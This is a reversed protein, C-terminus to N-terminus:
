RMEIVGFIVGVVGAVSGVMTWYRTSTWSWARSPPGAENRAAGAAQPNATTLTVPSNDGVNINIIQAAHCHPEPVRSGEDAQM